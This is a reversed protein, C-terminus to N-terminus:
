ASLARSYNFDHADLKQPSRSAKALRPRLVPSCPGSDRRWMLFRLLMEFCIVRKRSVGM